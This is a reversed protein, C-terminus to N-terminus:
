LEDEDSKAAAAPRGRVPKAVPALTENLREVQATTMENVPKRLADPEAYTIFEIEDDTFDFVTGPLIRVHHGDRSVTISNAAMRLPM